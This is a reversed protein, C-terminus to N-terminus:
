GCRGNKNVPIGRKRCQGLRAPVLLVAGQTGYGRSIGAVGCFLLRLLSAIATAGVSFPHPAACAPDPNPIGNTYAKGQVKFIKM